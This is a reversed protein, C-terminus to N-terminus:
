CYDILVATLWPQDQILAHDFHTWRLNQGCSNCFSMYERELHQLCRPCIPYTDGNHLVRIVNVDMPKRYVFAAYM